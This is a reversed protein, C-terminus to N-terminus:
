QAIRLEIFDHRHMGGRDENIHRVLDAVTPVDAGDPLDYAVRVVESHDGMFRETVLTVQISIESM